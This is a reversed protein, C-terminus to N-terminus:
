AAEEKDSKPLTIIEDKKSMGLAEKLRSTQYEFADYVDLLGGPVEYYSCFDCYFLM